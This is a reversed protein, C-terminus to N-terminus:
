VLRERKGFLGQPRVALTAVLLVVVLIDGVGPDVYYNALAQILGLTVAAIITGDISGLGGIVVVIFLFILMYDGVYPTVGRYFVAVLAGGM